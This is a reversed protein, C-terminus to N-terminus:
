AATTAPGAFLNFDPLRLFRHEAAAVGIFLCAAAASKAIEELAAHAETIDLVAMTGFCAAAITWSKLTASSRVLFRRLLVAAAAAPVAYGLVLLDDLHDTLPTPEVGARAHIWLDFNEHLRFM